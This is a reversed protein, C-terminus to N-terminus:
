ISSSRSDNYKRATEAIAWIEDLTFRLNGYIRGNSDGNSPNLGNTPNLHMGLGATHAIRRLRDLPIELGQKRLEEQAQRSNYLPKGARENGIYDLLSELPILNVGGVVRADLSGAEFLGHVVRRSSVKLRSQVEGPLLLDSNKIAEIVSSSLMKGREGGYFDAALALNIYPINGFHNHIIRPDGEEQILVYLERMKETGLHRYVGIGRQLKTIEEPEYEIYKGDRHRSLGNVRALRELQDRTIGLQKTVQATRLDAM